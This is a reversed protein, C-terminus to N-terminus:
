TCNPDKREKGKPLEPAIAIKDLKFGDERWIFVISHDGVELRKPLTIEDWEFKGIARAVQNFKGTKSGDDYAVYVSDDGGSNNTNYRFYAKYHEGGTSDLDEQTLTFNFTVLYSKDLWNPSTDYNGENEIWIYKSNSASVDEVTTWSSGVTASCEAEFVKTGNEPWDPEALTFSDLLFNVSPNDFEPYVMVSRPDSGPNYLGQEEFESIEAITHDASLQVWDDNTVPVSDTIDFDVQFLKEPNAATPTRPFFYRARLKVNVDDAAEDLKVWTIFKQKDAANTNNLIEVGASDEISSRGSVALSFTGDQADQSTAVGVADTLPLWGTTAGDEFDSRAVIDNELDSDLVIVDPDVPPTTDHPIITSATEDSGCASLTGAAIMVMLIKNLKKM